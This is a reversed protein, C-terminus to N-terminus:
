RQKRELRAQWNVSVTIPSQRLEQERQPKIFLFRAGDKTVAYQDEFLRPARIPSQFLEVPPTVDFGGDPNRSVAVSMLKGDPTLYFIEKGDGRWFPIGGGRASIQRRHEMAPFAALWIQPATTSDPSDERVQYVIATGDPSVHAEDVDGPVELLLRLSDPKEPTVAFLKGPRPVQFILQRDATWDSLWKFLHDSGFGLTAAGGGMPQMFLQNRSGMAVFAITKSDPSWVPDGALLKEETLPTMVGNALDLVAVRIAGTADVTGSVAVRKGDPSLRIQGFNARSGVTGLQKGQRDFWALESPEAGGGAGARYALLGTASVSYSAYGSLTDFQLRDVIRIPDGSLALQRDDFAQAFLTGSRMFLLHGPSVAAAADAAVLKVPASGELDGVFIARNASTFNWGMYIFHRDDPLMMPWGYSVAPGEGKLQPLQVPVGGQGPVRWLTATFADNAAVLVDGSKMWTGGAANPVEALKQPLGGTVNVKHLTSGREYGIVESDPSWFLNEADDTGPLARPEVGNIARIWIAPRLGTGAPAVYALFRGDPSLKPAAQYAAGAATLVEFQIQQREVSVAAPWFAYAAVAM